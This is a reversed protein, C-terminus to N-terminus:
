RRPSGSIPTLRGADATAPRSSARSPARSRGTTTGACGALRTSRPLQTPTCAGTSACTRAAARASPRADLHRHGRLDGDTEGELLHPRELAVTARHPHAPPVPLRGKFHQHSSVDGDEARRRHVGAEVVAPLHPADALVDFVAEPPAAVDWEDVFEYERDALKLIANAIQQQTKLSPRAAHGSAGLDRVFPPAPSRAAPLRPPQLRRRAVDRRPARPVRRHAGGPTHRVRVRGIGDGGALQYHPAGPPIEISDGPRLM